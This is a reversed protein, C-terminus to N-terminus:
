AAARALQHLLGRAISYDDFEAPEDDAAHSTTQGHGAILVADGPRAEALAWAIAETRDAILKAARPRRFGQLIQEATPSAAKRGRENSTIVALDAEAEIARGLLPCKGRDRDGADGFVCILRGPVVRRLTQLAGSLGDPTNAHDVYVSFSQGCEVRQLRGPVQEVAELGRVVLPLDIGYALGVTAALLCNYVHHLGIMRTRVPMIDSGASLLFTQESPCQELLAGTIEAPAQMAFTLAPTGIRGLFAATTPDDANLVALGEGAMHELLRSRALRYDCPSPYHNLYDRRVNTVAVTHFSVGAARGQDLGRVSVEMVAHTCGHDVMRRLWRATEAPPPTSQVAAQSEVGDFYGLSGLVGVPYGATSLVSAILCAATTKGSTGTVGIVKLHRSPDGALAHCLRGYAERTDPVYCVPVESTAVPREAVIASCGRAVAEAALAHGDEGRGALAVFLDGPEVQRSDATCAAVEVDDAGLIEAEPFLRRLSIWLGQNPCIQM